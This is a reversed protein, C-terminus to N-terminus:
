SVLAEAEWSVFLSFSASGSATIITMASRTFFNILTGSNCHVTMIM